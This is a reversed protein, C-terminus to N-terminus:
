DVHVAQATAVNALMVPNDEHQDHGSAIPDVTVPFDVHPINTNYIHQRNDRLTIM